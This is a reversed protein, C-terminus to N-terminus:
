ERNLFQEITDVLEACDAATISPNRFQALLSELEALLEPDNSYEERLIQIKEYQHIGEILREFRISPRNGPYYFYTDGAGFMRYRTDTLPHEDWNIWSWHLYGDMNTAAAYIPLFAAESPLSNSYINPEREACSTYLTTVYGQARRMAIQEATFRSEQGYAVCFDSLKDVLSAHYNGALAVKFGLTSAIRYARLMDEESREDMAIHTKDFWGREQLHAKFAVLFNHWLDYYEPMATATKLFKYEGAAEDYYRFSMDWPVMSFCNIQRVIGCEACLEVYKDFITYDYRWEGDKTLTTEVMPDFRDPIHTQAGWPEYFLIATVTSQGARALAELYPRLAEIHEDSWREVGYYRSISYPQQWLDLHFRQETVDPLTRKNVNITLHLRQIIKGRNNVVQLETTYAGPVIDQPIELTCWVPRVEMAKVAHPKDIDIVDAVLWAALDTPHNGCSKYDDTIVYNVFRAEGCKIGSRKGERRWESMRVRLEGEDRKSYLLAQINAREGRWVSIETSECQEVEPVEHLAYHVDRSAWTANLGDEIAAWATTDPTTGTRPEDYDYIPYDGGEHASIKTASIVGLLAVILLLKRTMSILKQTCIVFIRFFGSRIM